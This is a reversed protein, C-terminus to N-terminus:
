VIGQTKPVKIPKKGILTKNKAYCSRITIPIALVIVSIGVSVVFVLVAIPAALALVIIAGHQKEKVWIKPSTKSINFNTVAFADALTDALNAAEAGTVAAQTGHL